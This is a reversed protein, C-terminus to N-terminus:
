MLGYPRGMKGRAGDRNRSWRRPKGAKFDNWDPYEIMSVRFIGPVVPGHPAGTASSFACCSGVQDMLATPSRSQSRNRTVAFLSPLVEHDIDAHVSLLAREVAIRRHRQHPIQAVLKSQGARFEAAANREAAGARHMEVALGHAGAAHRHGVDAALLDHGDFAEVRLAFVRNLDRPAIETYRLAAVALGALDHLGRCQEFLFGRRAVLVDVVRHGAIQAAAATILAYRLGNTGGRLSRSMVM